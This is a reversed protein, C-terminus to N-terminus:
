AFRSQRSPAGTVPCGSRPQHRDRRLGDAGIGAPQLLEALQGLERLNIHRLRTTLLLDTAAKALPLADPAANLPPLDVVVWDAFASAEELLAAGVSDSLSEHGGDEAPLVDVTGAGMRVPM